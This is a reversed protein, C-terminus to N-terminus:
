SRRRFTLISAQIRGLGESVDQELEPALLPQSMLLQRLRRTKM